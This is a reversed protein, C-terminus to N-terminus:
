LCPFDEKGREEESIPKMECVGGAVFFEVLCELCFHAQKHGITILMGGGKIEHGKDCRYTPEKFFNIPATAHESM